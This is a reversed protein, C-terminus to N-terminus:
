NAEMADTFSNFRLNIKMQTNASDVIAEGLNFDDIENLQGVSFMRGSFGASSLIENVINCCQSLTLGVFFDAKVELTNLFDADYFKVKGKQRHLKLGFLFMATDMMKLKSEYDKFM